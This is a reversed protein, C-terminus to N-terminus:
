PTQIRTSRRHCDPSHTPRDTGFSNADISTSEGPREQLFSLFTMFSDVDVTLNPLRVIEPVGGGPVWIETDNPSAFFAEYDLGLFESLRWFINGGRTQYTENADYTPNRIEILKCGPRSFIVNTLGAGHAGIIWEAQQFTAIQEDFSLAEPTVKEFGILALEQFLENENSIKGHGRRERSIYIRRGHCTKASQSLSLLFDRARLAFTQGYYWPGSTFYFEECEVHPVKELPIIKEKKIDLRECVVRTSAHIPSFMIFHDFDSIEFGAEKAFWIRPMEEILFHYYNWHGVLLLSKGSYRHLPGLWLKKFLWNDQPGRGMWASFSSLIRDDKTLITRADRHFRGEQIRYLGLEPSEHRLPQFIPLYRADITSPARLNLSEAAIVPWKDALGDHVAQTYANFSGYYGKPPGIIRASLPLRQFVRALRDRGFKGITVLGSRV